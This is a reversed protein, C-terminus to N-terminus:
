RLLDVLASHLDPYAFSFGCEQAKAPLVRQGRLVLDAMEGLAARLAFGPTPLWHRRRLVAAVERGFADMRVSEPATVNFAGELEAHRLAFLLMGVVDDMHVWSVWQEGSGVTGGAYMRYPLAMKALAGGGRGLIVGFRALCVRAGVTQAKLAETEWQETVASLFDPTAPSTAETFTLEESTGYYGIASANLLVPYPAGARAVSAAAQRTAILRSDLIARKREATWRGSNISTGALNIVAELAPQSDGPWTLGREGLLVSQVQQGFLAQVKSPQRSAVIVEKNEALLAPVLHRGVFGTGGLVLIAAM